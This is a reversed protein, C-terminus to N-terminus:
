IERQKVFPTSWSDVNQRKKKESDGRTMLHHKTGELWCYCCWWTLTIEIVHHLMDIGRQLLQSTEQNTQYVTKALFEFGKTNESLHLNLTWICTELSTHFHSSHSFSIINSSFNGFTSSWPIKPTQVKTLGATLGLNIPELHRGPFSSPLGQLLPHNAPDRTPM